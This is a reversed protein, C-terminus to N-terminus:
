VRHEATGAAHRDFELRPPKRAHMATVATM